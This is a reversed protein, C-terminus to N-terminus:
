PLITVHYCRQNREWIAYLRGESQLQLITDALIAQFQRRRARGMLFGLQRRVADIAEAGATGEIPEPLYVYFDDYFIDFSIGYSHSSIISANANRSRLNNQYNAPRLASSIAIKVHEYVEREKLNKQFRAALEELGSAAFPVLYRHKDPVNFFYYKTETTNDIPALRNLEVLTPIDDESVVPQVAAQQVIRLHDNLLYTRLQREREANRWDEYIPLGSYYGRDHQQAAELFETLQQQAERERNQFYNALLLGTIIAGGLVGVALYILQKKM